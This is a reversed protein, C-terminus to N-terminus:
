PRFERLLPALSRLGRACLRAAADDSVGLVAAIERWTLEGYVKLCVAEREADALAALAASVAASVEEQGAARDSPPSPGRLVGAFPRREVARRRARDVLLNRAVKVAWSGPRELSRVRSWSRHAAFCVEQFVDEADPSGGTAHHLYSSLRPEVARLFADYEDRAGTV